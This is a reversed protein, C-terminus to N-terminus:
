KVSVGSNVGDPTQGCRTQESDPSNGRPQSITLKRGEGQETDSGLMLLRVVKEPSLGFSTPETGTADYRPRM